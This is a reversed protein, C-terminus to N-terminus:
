VGAARPRDVSRLSGLVMLLRDLLLLVEATAVRGELRREENCRVGDLERSEAESPLESQGPSSRVGGSLPDGSVKDKGLFGSSGFSQAAVLVIKM